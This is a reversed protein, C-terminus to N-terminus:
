AEEDLDPDPDGFAPRAPAPEMRRLWAPRRDDDTTRAPRGARAALADALLQEHDPQEASAPPTPAEPEPSRRGRSAAFLLFGGVLGVAAGGALAVALVSEGSTPGGSSRDGDTSGHGTTEAGTSGAEPRTSAGDPSATTPDPMPAAAPNAAPGSSGVSDNTATSGGAAGPDGGRTAPAAPTPVPAATAPAATAPAPTAAIPVPTITPGAIPDITAPAPTPVPVPTQKKEQGPPLTPSAIPDTPVLTPRAALVTGPILAAAVLLGAAVVVLPASGIGPRRGARADAPGAHVTTAPTPDM